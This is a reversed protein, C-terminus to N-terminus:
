NNMKDLATDIENFIEEVYFPISETWRLFEKDDSWIDVPLYDAREGYMKLYVKKALKPHSGLVLRMPESEVIANLKDSLEIIGNVIKERDELTLNINKGVRKAVEAETNVKLCILNIAGLGERYKEFLRRSKWKSISRLVESIDMIVAKITNYADKISIEM